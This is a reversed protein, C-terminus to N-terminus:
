ARGGGDVNVVTGTMYRSHDSALFLAVGAVDEAEGIRPIPNNAYLDASAYNPAGPRRRIEANVNRNMTTDVGGPSIVNVRIGFPGYERAAARGILANAAKSGGYLSFGSAGTFGAGSSTIIISGGGARRMPELAAQLGNFVGLVNIDFLERYQDETSTIIPEFIIRGANLFVISPAGFVKECEELASDWQGRNRVDLQVFHAKDDGLDKVVLPGEDEGIDAIVVRAGEAVLLRATAAGIGRGGGTIFAVKDAVQGYQVPQLGKNSYTAVLRAQNIIDLDIKEQLEEANLGPPLTRGGGVAYLHFYYYHTGHGPPPAAPAWAEEGISNVGATGLEAGAAIGTAGAPINYRVWHTFGGLLPADPDHVVLAFSTTGEPVGSWSLAPSGGAGNNTFEDPLRGGPEFDPSSLSLSGINVKM